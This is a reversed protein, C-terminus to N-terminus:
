KPRDQERMTMGPSRDKKMTMGSEGFALDPIWFGCKGM